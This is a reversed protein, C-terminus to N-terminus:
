RSTTGYGDRASAGVFRLAVDGGGRLHLKGDITEAALHQALRAALDSGRAPDLEPRYPLVLALGDTEERQGRRFVRADAGSARRALAVLARETRVLMERSRLVEDFEFELTVRHAWGHDGLPVLRPPRPEGLQMAQPSALPLLPALLAGLGVCTLFLAACLAARDAVFRALAARWPGSGRVARAAVLWGALRPDSSM